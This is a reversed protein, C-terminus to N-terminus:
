ILLLLVAFTIINALEGRLEKLFLELEKSLPRDM